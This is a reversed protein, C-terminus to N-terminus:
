MGLQLQIKRLEDIEARATEVDTGDYWALLKEPPYIGLSVLKLKEDFERERDAAISDDWSFSVEYNGASVGQLQALIDFSKILHELAHQLAEQIDCVTTFLRDKSAKVETATKAQVEANSIIGYSVGSAFEIERKIENLRSQMDANRLQPNFVSMGFTEANTEVVRFLREKGKPLIPANSGGRKSGSPRFFDVSADVALEGGENEWDIRAEQQDAKRLSEIAKSWLPLGQLQQSEVKDTSPMRFLVFLPQEIGHITMDGFHAWEPVNSLEIQRGLVQPAYRSVDSEYAKYIIEHTQATESYRHFELLKYIKKDRRLEAGFIVEILEGRLNYAIPLYCDTESLITEIGKATSYPKFIVEGNNCAAVVYGKLQKIVKQYQENLYDARASGTIATEIGVCVKQAVEASLSSALKLSPTNEDNWWANGRVIDRYLKQRNAITQSIVDAEIGFAQKINQKNFLGQWWGKLLSFIGM